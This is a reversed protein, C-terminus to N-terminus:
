EHNEKNSQIQAQKNMGSFHPNGHVDINDETTLWDKKLWMREWRNRREQHALKWAEDSLRCWHTESGKINRFVIRGFGIFGNENWKEAIDFDDQNMMRADIKGGYDVARTELFLLLSREDKSMKNIEM